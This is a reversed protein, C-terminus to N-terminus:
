SSRAFICKGSEFMQEFISLHGKCSWVEAFRDDVPRLHVLQLGADPLHLGGAELAPRELRMRGETREERSPREFRARGVRDEARGGEQHRHQGAGARGPRPAAHDPHEVEAGLRGAPEPDVSVLEHVEDFFRHTVTRYWDAFEATGHLKGEPFTMELGEPALYDLVSELPDHRDLAEYWEKVLARVRGDTVRAVTNTTTTM